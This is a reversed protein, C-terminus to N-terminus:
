MDYHNKLYEIFAKRGMEALSGGHKKICRRIKNHLAPRMTVQARVISRTGKMTLDRPM